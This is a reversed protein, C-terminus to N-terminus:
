FILLTFISSTTESFSFCDIILLNPIGTQSLTTFSKSLIPFTTGQFDLEDLNAKLPGSLYLSAQTIFTKFLVNRQVLHHVYVV